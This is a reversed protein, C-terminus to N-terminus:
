SSKNKYESESSDSYSKRDGKKLDGNQLWAWCQDSRVEKTQRLYQGRLVKEEWDELRKEKKSRNLVSAAELGDIREGRAAQILRVESGHVYVELGRIALEVCDEISILGRGGEKRPIYLRDADSKPHLAGYMTFFKRTKRDIAQLESKKWSVFATSYIILSAAWTIVERALNGGNLKLKLVKRLRRIYEKSVNPKMKEKLFKDAELIGLYKYSEGEQLSKIVKGDPLEIGVSKVIKKKETLLMACKEIGFEMEIDESFARVAQVLSDLGKESPSHLKLDDMFLIKEKSESFEYAAKAKRLILSLPISALIFLLPSLSHGQFVGRKKEVEGSESNGSRLMVKWRETSNVLLSKINQAVEFLDLCEIIWSHPVMDYAKKYDIWAM